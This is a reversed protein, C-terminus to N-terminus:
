DEENEKIEEKEKTDDTFKGVLKQTFKKYSNKQLIGEIKKHPGLVPLLGEEINADPEWNYDIQKGGKSFSDEFEDEMVPNLAEINVGDPNEAQEKAKDEIVEKWIVTETNSFTLYYWTKIKATGVFTLSSKHQLKTIIKPIPDDPNSINIFSTNVNDFGVILFKM